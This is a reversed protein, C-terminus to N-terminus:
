VGHPSLTEPPMYEGPRATLKRLHALLQQSNTACTPFLTVQGLMEHVEALYQLDTLDNPQNILHYCEWLFAKVPDQKFWIGFHFELIQKFAPDSILESLALGLASFPSAVSRQPDPKASLPETFLLKQINCIMKKSLEENGTIEQSHRNGQQDKVECVPRKDEEM